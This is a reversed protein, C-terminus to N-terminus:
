AKEVLARGAATLVVAAPARGDGGALTVLEEALADEWACTFPCTSRWAAQVDAYTRPRSAVWKLFEVTILKPAASM